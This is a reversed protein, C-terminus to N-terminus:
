SAEGREREEAVVLMEELNAIEQKIDKSTMEGLLWPNHKRIEKELGDVIKPDALTLFDGLNPKSFAIPQGGRFMNWNTVVTKILEHRESGPDMKMRADGTRRELVLDRSTTQQFKLKDGENMSRFEIWQVGDPLTYRHTEQFGFYDVPQKDFSEPSDPADPTMTGMETM